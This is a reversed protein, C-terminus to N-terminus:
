KRGPMTEASSDRRNRPGSPSLQGKGEAHVTRPEADDGAASVPLGERAERPQARRPGRVKRLDGPRTWPGTGGTAPDPAGWAPGPQVSRAFYAPGSGGAPIEVGEAM